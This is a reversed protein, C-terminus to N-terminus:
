LGVHGYKNQTRSRGDTCLSLHRPCRTCVNPIGKYSSLPRMVQALGDVNMGLKSSIIKAFDDVRFAWSMTASAFAVNGKAPSFEFAPRLSGDPLSSLSLPRAHPWSLHFSARQFSRMRVATEATEAASCKTFLFASNQCRSCYGVLCDRMVCHGNAAAATTVCREGDERPARGCVRRQANRRSGRCGGPIAGPLLERM